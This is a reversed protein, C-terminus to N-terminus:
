NSCDTSTSSAYLRGTTTDVCVVKKTGAAGTTKLDGISVAGAAVNLAWRNAATMNTGPSPANAVYLTSADTTTVGTNRADLTPAQFAYANWTPATGAAATTEDTATVAPANVLAGATGPHTSQPHGITLLTTSVHATTGSPAKIPSAKLELFGANGTGRALLAAFITSPAGNNTSNAMQTTGFGAYGLTIQGTLAANVFNVGGVALTTGSSSTDANNRVALSNNTNYKLRVGDAATGFLISPTSPLSLGLTFAHTGTWTYNAATDVSGGGGGLLTWTNVATCGFLNSGATADTDFFTDGVACAAPAMTGAKNPATRTANTLNLDTIQVNLTSTGTINTPDTWIALQDATPAGSIGVGGGSAPAGGIPGRINMQASLSQICSFWLLISLIGIWWRPVTM